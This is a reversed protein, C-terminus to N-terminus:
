EDSFEQILDQLGKLSAEVSMLPTMGEPYEEQEIVVWNTGGYQITADFLTKWDYSDQGLIVKKDKAVAGPKGQYTRIKYHTTLTRNPYRKIYKIPDVKAFNAWGVDLQLVFEEPTNQALYDWYTSDNFAAFEKAHNHYGLKLGMLAAWASTRKLEDILEDIKNPKDIRADHPIIILTAGLQKFFEFNQVGREGQLQSLSIHAGSAQLGISSLFKKLGQPDDKYPGYRGAFEVGSFGMEAIKKLTETFDQTVENKVSHLQLSIKPATVPKTTTQACAPIFVIFICLQILTMM